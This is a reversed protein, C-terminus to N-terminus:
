ALQAEMKIAVAGAAIMVMLVSRKPDVPETLFLVGILIVFLVSTERLAVAMGVSDSHTAIM